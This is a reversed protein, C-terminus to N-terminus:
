DHLEMSVSFTFSPSLTGGIEWKARYSGNLPISTAVGAGLGADAIVNEDSAGAVISLRRWSCCCGSRSGLMSSILEDTNSSSARSMWSM